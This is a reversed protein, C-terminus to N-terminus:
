ANSVTKPGNSLFKLAIVPVFPEPLDLLKSAIHKTNPIFEDLNNRQVLREYSIYLFPYAPILLAVTVKIKSLVSLYVHGIPYSFSSSNYTLLVIKM